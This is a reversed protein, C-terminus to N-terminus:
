VHRCCGPQRNTDALTAEAVTHRHQKTQHADALYLLLHHAPSPKRCPGQKYSSLVKNGYEIAATRNQCSQKHLCCYPLPHPLQTSVYWCLLLTATHSLQLAARNTWTM